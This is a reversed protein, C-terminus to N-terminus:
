VAAWVKKNRIKGILQPTVGFDKSLLSNSAGEGLRKKIEIVDELKLKGHNFMRNSHFSRRYKTMHYEM